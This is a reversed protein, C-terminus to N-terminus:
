CWNNFQLRGRLWDLYKLGEDTGAIDDIKRHAYKGFTIIFEGCPVDIIEGNLDSFDM